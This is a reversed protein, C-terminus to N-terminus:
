GLGALGGSWGSLVANVYGDGSLWCCGYAVQRCLPRELRSQSRIGLLLCHIATEMCCHGCYICVHPFQFFTEHMLCHM